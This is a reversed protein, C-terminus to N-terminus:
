PFPWIIIGAKVVAPTKSFLLVPKTLLEAPVLPCTSVVLPLPATVHAVGVVPVTVDTEPVAGMATAVPVLVGTIEIAAAVVEVEPLMLAASLVLSSAIEPVFVPSWVIVSVPSTVPEPVPLKAAVMEDAETLLELIAVIAAFVMFTLLEADEAEGDSKDMVALVKGALLLVPFIAALGTVSKARVMSSSALAAATLVVMPAPVPFPVTVDTEPVAGIETAVPVVVGAIEMEGAVVEAAPLMLAASLVLSSPMTPLWHVVLPEFM